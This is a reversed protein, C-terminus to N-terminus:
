RSRRSSALLDSGRMGPMKEDSVIVDISMAELLELAEAPSHAFLLDYPEDRLPFEHLALRRGGGADHSEILFAAGRFRGKQLRDRWSM